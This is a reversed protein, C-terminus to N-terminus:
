VEPMVHLDCSIAALRVSLYSLGEVLRRRIAAFM